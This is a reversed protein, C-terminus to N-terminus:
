FNAESTSKKVIALDQPQTTGHDKSEENIKDNIKRKAVAPTSTIIVFKQSKEWNEDFFNANKKFVLKIIL